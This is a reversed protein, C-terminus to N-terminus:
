KSAKVHLDGETRDIVDTKFGCDALTTMLEDPSSGFDDTALRKDSKTPKHIECYVLRCDDRRLTERLGNIVLPESGEVDIKIVTPSPVDGDAVLEDGRATPVQVTHESAQRAISSSGYGVDENAPQNFLVTGDSDSLALECVLVNELGNRSIDRRLLDNNPPYPEFAIVTGQPCNKAAFLTYLGTNAGIDYFVDDDRLEQVLDILVANEIRHRRRNRHVASYTPASFSVTTDGVSLTYFDRIVGWYVKWVATTVYDVSEQLFTVLGEERLVALGRRVVGVVRDIILLFFIFSDEAMWM